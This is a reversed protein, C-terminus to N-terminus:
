KSDKWYGEVQRTLSDIVSISTIDGNHTFDNLNNKKVLSDDGNQLIKILKGWESNNTRQM